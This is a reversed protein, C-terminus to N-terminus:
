CFFDTFRAPARTIELPLDLCALPVLSSIEYGGTGPLLTLPLPRGGLAFSSTTQSRRHYNPSTTISYTLAIQSRMIYSLCCPSVICWYATAAYGHDCRGYQHRWRSPRHRHRVILTRQGTASFCTAEAKEQARPMSLPPLRFRGQNAPDFETHSHTFGNFHHELPYNV